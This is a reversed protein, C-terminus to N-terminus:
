GGIQAMYRGEPSQKLALEHGVPKVRIAQQILPLLPEGARLAPLIPIELDSMLCPRLFGDATLRIRNCRSCFHHESMPSIFGIKGIGNQLRYGVAPGNGSDEKVRELGLPQLRVLIEDLPFHATELDPFGQGWPQQNRLPMLEIFRVHWNYELTLRALDIIEDDNFGRVIVSNIKIPTLGHTEAATIGRWVKQFNGGRTIRGFKEPILTDLSINVRKLGAKALLPASHELLQGNTTLSVEEIGPILCLKEVLRPLDNRVLPEGGTLRVERIGVQAAVRVFTEIEEFRMIAEHPLRNIGEPPMCYVCRLDCRDTVSIRLYTIKRGHPDILM